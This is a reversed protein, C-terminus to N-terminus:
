SKSAYTPRARRWADADEFTPTAFEFDTHRVEVNRRDPIDDARAAFAMLALVILSLARM